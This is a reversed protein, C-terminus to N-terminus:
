EKLPEISSLFDDWSDALRDLVVPSSAGDEDEELKNSPAAPFTREYPLETM